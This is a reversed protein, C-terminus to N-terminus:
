ARLRLGRMVAEATGEPDELMQAHGGGPVIEIHANSAADVIAESKSPPAAVDESGVRALIPVMLGPLRPTLDESHAFAAFEASLNSPSTADVWGEVTTTSEPRKARYAASLSRPGMLTRLDEGRALAESLQKYGAREEATFAAFGGLLVLCSAEVIGHCALALAHYAGGSYGVLAARRIRRAHLTAGLAQHLEGFEWPQPLPESAGYGPLAVEIACAQEAVKRAIPELVDWPTPCGHLFVVAPGTGSTRLAISM